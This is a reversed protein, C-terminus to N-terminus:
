EKIPNANLTMLLEILDEKDSTTYLEEEIEEETCKNAHYRHNLEIFRQYTM